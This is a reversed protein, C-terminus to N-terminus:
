VNIEETDLTRRALQNGIEDLVRGEERLAERYYEDARREKLRTLAKRRASAEVYRERVKGRELELAARRHQLEETRQDIRNVYDERSHMTRMDLTGAGAHYSRMSHRKQALDEIERDVGVIRSTVEALSLEWEREAQRRLGAVLKRPKRIRCRGNDPVGGEPRPKRRIVARAHTVREARDGPKRLGWRPASPWTLM